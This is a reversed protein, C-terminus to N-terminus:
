LLLKGQVLLAVPILGLEVRQRAHEWLIEKYAVNSLM